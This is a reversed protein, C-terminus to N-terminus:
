ARRASAVMRMATLRSPRGRDNAIWLDIGLASFCTWASDGHNGRAYYVLRGGISRKFAYYPRKSCDAYDDKDRGDSVTWILRTGSRGFTVALRKMLYGYAPEEIHWSTFIFGRPAFTPIYTFQGYEAKIQRLTLAPIPVKESRELAAPAPSSALAVASVAAAGLAALALLRPM